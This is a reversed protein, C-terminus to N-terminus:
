VRMRSRSGMNGRMRCLDCEGSCLSGHAYTATDIGALMDILATDASAWGTRPGRTGDRRTHMGEGQPSLVSRHSTSVTGAQMNRNGM